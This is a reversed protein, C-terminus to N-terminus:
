HALILDGHSHLMEKVHQLNDKTKRLLASPHAQARTAGFAMKDPDRYRQQTRVSPFHGECILCDKHAADPPLYIELLNLADEDDMSSGFLSQDM